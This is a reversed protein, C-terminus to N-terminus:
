RVHITQASAEFLEQCEDDQARQYTITFTRYKSIILYTTQYIKEEGAAQYEADIIFGPYGDTNIKKFSSVSYGVDIGYAVSYAESMKEQYVDKSLNLSEDVISSEGSKAFAIKERNTLVKDRGNDYYSYSITSSEMPHNVNIFTGKESGPVFEPPIVFSCQVATKVESEARTEIPFLVLVMILCFVFYSIRKMYAFERELFPCLAIIQATGM